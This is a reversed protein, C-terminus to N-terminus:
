SAHKLADVLDHRSMQSRGPIRAATAKKYLDAKTLADWDQKKPSSRIRKKGAPKKASGAGSGTARTRTSAKEGAPKPSRARDVSARLAEMLDVAGTPEAAPEAKEVTDGKQKAKILAAVKEQFTDHFQGPDWTMAMAEILQEAMRVEKATGKAKGPLGDIEDKPNRIEDAWHLTHLTLLGDEAKLAVLYEHQRMVFTAIGAKGTKALAQEFLSYTKEFGKGRPGLYYTEDFFIPEIDDLDVFGTIELSQSRGPAIEDLEKPEVLVYEGEGTDYGKVVDSLDVEEGTRENVRRNRIRDSTGRQLQHFHITHSDTATYLGVPLSVLGFSLNGAWVPRAM